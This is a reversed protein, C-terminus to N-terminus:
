GSTPDHIGDIPLSEIFARTPAPISTAPSTPAGDRLRRIMALDTASITFPARARGGLLTADAVNAQLRILRDGQTIHLEGRLINFSDLHLRIATIRGELESLIIDILGALRLREVCDCSPQASLAQADAPSLEISIYEEAEGAVPREEVWWASSLAKM